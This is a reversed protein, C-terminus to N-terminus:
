RRVSEGGDWTSKTSDANWGPPLHGVSFDAYCDACISGPTVRAPPFAARCTMKTGHFSWTDDPVMMSFREADPAGYSGISARPVSSPTSSIDGDAGSTEVHSPFSSPITESGWGAVRGNVKNDADAFDFMDFMADANADRRTLAPLDFRAEIFRVISTHDYTIGSKTVLM